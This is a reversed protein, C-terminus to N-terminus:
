YHGSLEFFVWSEKVNIARVGVGFIGIKSLYEGCEPSFSGGGNEPFIDECVLQEDIMRIFEFKVRAQYNFTGPEACPDAPMLDLVKIRIEGNDITGGKHLVFSGRMKTGGKEYNKWGVVNTPYLPERREQWSCCCTALLCSLIVVVAQFLKM